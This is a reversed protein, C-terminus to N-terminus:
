IKEMLSPNAYLPLARTVQIINGINAVFTPESPVAMIRAKITSCDCEVFTGNCAPQAAFIRGMHWHSFGAVTKKLLGHVSDHMVRYEDYRGTFGGFTADDNVGDIYVEGVMIEQESLNAFVPFPYDYKDQILWARNIGQQYAPKPKVCMLGMILGPEEVRYTGIFGQGVALGKGAINGQPTDIDIAGATATASTQVVEDMMVPLKARGIWEPEQLTKDLPAVNYQGRLFENLHSGARANIEMFRQIQISERLDAVDFTTSTLANDNMTNLAGSAAVFLNEVSNFTINAVNANTGGTYVVKGTVPFAPAVGRQQFPLADSFYDREWNGLLLDENTLLEETQLSQRRVHWNWIMNYAYQPWAVPNLSPEVAPYGLYDWLTGEVVKGAASPNWRPPATADLGDEGGTIFDSFTSDVIRYPVFYYDFYAWVEHLPSAVMPMFRLVGEVSINVRDGPMMPMTCIPILQGMDGSLKHAHSMNFRSYGPTIGRVVPNKNNSSTVKM